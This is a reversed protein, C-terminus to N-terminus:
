KPQHSARRWGAHELEAVEEGTIILQGGKALNPLYVTRGLTFRQCPKWDAPPLMTVAGKALKLTDDDDVVEAAVDGGEIPVVGTATKVSLMNAAPSPDPDLGLRERAENRTMVGSDTYGVLIDKQKAQDVEDEEAWAFEISGADSGFEEAIVFNVLDAVFLKTGQLGEEEGSKDHQESISRNSLSVFASPPYSFAACVIRVLFEDFENKLPPEKLATFASKNGGPIFKMRRRNGLNGVFLNDFYDQFRQIQDGTWSEPMGYISEPQNGERFYELQSTSRRMAINITNIIQEVPSFGWLSHSRKNMARYILDATTYDIAPLGHLLMQYAVPLFYGNVVKGFQTHNEATITTGNWVFPQGSWPVPRPTRGWADITRKLLAADVPQLGLLEGSRSRECYLGVADIVYHDELIVRLWERWSLEQVPRSVFESVDRILNRTSAPLAESKPRKSAGDQLKPRVTWGLRCMQDKRREIVIRVPDYADALRRMMQFSVPEDARPQTVLNVGPMFDLARGAVEPPAVPQMPTLPGFWDAGGNSFNASQTYTVEVSTPSLTTMSRAGNGRPTNIKTIDNM